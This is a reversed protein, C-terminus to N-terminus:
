KVTMVGKMGVMGHGPFSCFYPYEGPESPATFTITDSEGGGLMKTKAIIKDGADKPLYDNDPVSMGAQSIANMDAGKVLIVVNHGMATKAMKGTHKLTLEVKTGAPAEFKTVSYKMQDNGEITVKVPDAAQASLCALGVLLTLACTFTKLSPNFSSRLNTTMGVFM